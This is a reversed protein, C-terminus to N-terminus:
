YKVLRMVFFVGGAHKFYSHFDQAFLFGPLSYSVEAEGYWAVGCSGHPYTCKLSSHNTEGEYAKCVSLNFSSYLCLFVDYKGM